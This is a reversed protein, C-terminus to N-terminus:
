KEMLHMRFGAKSLVFWDLLASKVACPMYVYTNALNCDTGDRNRM